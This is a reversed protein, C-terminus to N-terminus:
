KSVEARIAGPDLTVQIGELPQGDGDSFRISGKWDGTRNVVKFVLVNLGANLDVIATDQDAIFMRTDLSRYVEKGNLYVKSQDDSGVHMVVGSQDTDSDIYSVAYALRDGVHLASIDDFDSSTEGIVLQFNIVYDDLQLPRWILESDAVQAREAAVPQLDAEGALQEQGLAALGVSNRDATDSYSVPALVLWQRISGPDRRRVDRARALTALRKSKLETLELNSANTTREWTAVQEPSAIEWVKATRDGGATVIKKSDPSFAVSFVDDYHGQLTLLERGTLADWVKATQDDSGTVIRTGDSSVAVSRVPLSHGRLTFRERGTAAEWVKALRDQSGTVVLTGDASFAVSKVAAM